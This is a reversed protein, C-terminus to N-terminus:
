VESAAVDAASPLPADQEPTDEGHDIARDALSQGAPQLAATDHEDHQPGTYALAAEMEATMPLLPYLRRLATKIHMPGPNTVWPGYGKDASSSAGAAANIDEPWCVVSVVSGDKLKACAYAAVFTGGKGYVREGPKMEHIIKPTSGRIFRYADQEHVNEGWMATVNGSRYALEVMGDKTVFHQVSAPVWQDTQKDKKNKVELYAHKGGCQLGTKALATVAMFWSAQLKSGMVKEAVDQNAYLWASLQGTWQEPDSWKPLAAAISEGRAGDVTWEFLERWASTKEKTAM